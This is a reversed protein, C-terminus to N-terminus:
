FSLQVGLSFRRTSPYRFQSDVSPALGSTHMEPDIGSYGTLVFLNGGTFYVRAKRIWKTGKTNFTYGLTVNDIKWYDGREVFYSVYQLEQDEALPVKGYIPDYATRYINGRSLMVPCAFNMANQNLIHFGFAGRMTITADFNKYRLTNNWNLMFKPIGNGIIKKDEPVQEQIPKPNGDEGEIIWHGDASIDISKYGYFNGLPQGEQIRHTTSQIPEGTHGQDSYGISVFQDNSLSVLMNKNSSFNVGTQWTFNKNAVATYNLGVEIGKNSITGANATMSSYLYPPSAVTYDWLLDTTKRSYLDIVGTFRNNFLGFDIGLNWEAKKEWRLNPNPNSSPRITQMWVNDIPYTNGISLTSLSMYRSSPETGTVGYGLRVKLSNVGKWDKAWEENTINWAGSVAPFLGWKHNTGFKSSGEYRASVMLNYRGRYSYNVRGLFGVLKNEGAYSSMSAKGDQLATGAGINNWKFDDSAFNYNTMSSNEDFLANYSYGVLASLSHYQAITKTYQATIESIVRRFSESGLTASGTQDARKQNSEESTAYYRNQGVSYRNSYNWRLTFGEFPNFEVGTRLHIEQRDYLGKQENSLAVPNSINNNSLNEYYSGDAEYVPYTPNNVLASQYVTTNFNKFQRHRAELAATLKLRNNFMRHNVQLKPYVNKNSTNIMLGVNDRYDISAVYNTNKSGGRLNINYVQSLPTQMVEELWNTNAGGDVAGTRGKALFLDRYEQPTAYPLLKSITQVTVNANVDVITPMEGIPNKTSILIVGNTGRTGYIAAASGDKLVDIQEIQDPSVSSLEGEVGDILILPSTSAKLTTAGRLQISSTANPDGSTSVITLGPVQGRILAAADAAPVQLFKDATVTAVSSSVDGRKQTGYGVVVVEDISETDETLEITINQRGAVPVESSNYGIFSVQLVANSPVNRLTFLGNADTTTGNMDGKVVVNAGAVPGVADTVKGQVTINQAGLSYSCCFLVLCIFSLFSTKM